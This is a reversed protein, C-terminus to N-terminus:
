LSWDSSWRQTVFNWTEGEERHAQWRERNTLEPNQIRPNIRSFAGTRELDQFLAEEQEASLPRLDYIEPLDVSQPNVGYGRLNTYLLAERFSLTRYATALAQIPYELSQRPLHDPRLLESYFNSNAGPDPVRRTTIVTRARRISDQYQEFTTRFWQPWCSRIRDRWNQMRAERQPMEQGEPQGIEGILGLVLRIFASTNTSDRFGHRDDEEMDRGEMGFLEHELYPRPQAPFFTMRCAPCSNRGEKDPSLWTRICSAGVHHGCPLRAATEVTADEKTETSYATLCIMCKSEDLLHELSIEPLESLFIEAM